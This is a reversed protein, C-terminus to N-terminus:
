KRKAKGPELAAGTSQIVGGYYMKPMGYIVVTGPPVEMFAYEGNLLKALHTDNVFLEDHAASGAFRSIRYICVIAKGAPPRRCSQLVKPIRRLHFTEQSYFFCRLAHSCFAQPRTAFDGPAFRQPAVSLLPVCLASGERM